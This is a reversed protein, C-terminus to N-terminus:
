PTPITGCNSCYKDMTPSTFLQHCQQCETEWQSDGSVDVRRHFPEPKSFVIKGLTKGAFAHVTEFSDCAKICLEFVDKKKAPGDFILNQGACNKFVNFSHQKIPGEVFVTYHM